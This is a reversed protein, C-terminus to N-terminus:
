APRQNDQPDDDPSETVRSTIRNCTLRYDATPARQHWLMGRSSMIRQKLLAKPTCSMKRGFNGLLGFCDTNLLRLEVDQTQQCEGDQRASKDCETRHKCDGNERSRVTKKGESQASQEGANADQSPRMSTMKPPVSSNLPFAKITMAHAAPLTGSRSINRAQSM